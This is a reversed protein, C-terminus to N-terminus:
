YWNNSLCVNHIWNINKNNNKRVGEPHVNFRSLSVHIFSVTARTRRPAKTTSRWDLLQRRQLFFSTLRWTGNVVKKKLFRRSLRGHSRVQRPLNNFGRELCGSPSVLARVNANCSRLFNFGFWPKASRVATKPLLVGRSAEQRRRAPSVTKALSARREFVFALLYFSSRSLSPLALRRRRSESVASASVTREASLLYPNSLLTLYKRLSLLVWCGAAVKRSVRAKDSFMGVTREATSTNAFLERLVPKRVANGYFYVLPSERKVTEWLVRPTPKLELLLRFGGGVALHVAARKQRSIPVSHRHHVTKKKNNNIYANQVNVSESKFKTQKNSCM